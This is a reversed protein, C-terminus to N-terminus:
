VAECIGVEVSEEPTLYILVHTNSWPTEKGPEEEKEISPVCVVEGLFDTSISKLIPSGTNIRYGSVIKIGTSFQMSFYWGGGIDQYWVRIDVQQGNLVTTFTQAFDNTLPITQM